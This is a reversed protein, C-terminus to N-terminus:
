EASSPYNDILNMKVWVHKLLLKVSIM